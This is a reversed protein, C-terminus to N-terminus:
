LRYLAYREDTHLRQAGDISFMRPVVLYDAGYRIPIAIDHSRVFARYDAVRRYPRNKKTDAVHAPPAVAVYVPLQAAIRYSAGPPAYVVDGPAVNERLAQLLAAPLRTRDRGHVSWNAFGHVAVPLVFAVAALAAVPGPDIRLGRRVLAAVVLAAAGGFAAIWTALAPGGHELGYQFDGPWAIQLAVGAAFSVPVLLPGAFRALVTLGGAFAFAAPLFGAARRSQSLSVADSFHVFLAPVLMLALVVVSGGLVLAAWRRQGALGVLPVLVLAAVAIAGGRGLTEPALRYRDPSWVNLQEGYHALARAKEAPDPNHSATDEIVPRLWLLVAGTPVLLAALGLAAARVDERTLLWRAAAFGALPLALFLAYTPHVLATAMSVSALAGFMAPTTRDLALFFLAIAAPVLLQRTATPPLALSTFAGGHGPALAILGVQALLVGLGGAATRFVAFGAEYAVAFAIPALVSAEHRVVVSPDLGSIRAVLALFGHWLPFAYGPHLGGDRFEDVSSLHLGGLEDLKRVRAVHFLADGGLPPAVHWLLLGFLIGGLVVPVLGPPRRLVLRGRAMGAACAVLLVVFAPWLGSHVTFVLLLGAFITGMAWALAASVSRQGLARAILGGPLFLVVTAFALRVYEIV